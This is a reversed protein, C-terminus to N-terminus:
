PLPKKKRKADTVNGHAGIRVRCVDQHEQEALLSAHHIARMRGAEEEGTEKEKM